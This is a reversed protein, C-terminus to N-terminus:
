GAVPAPCPRLGPDPGFAAHHLPHVGCCRTRLWCGECGEQFVNRAARAGIDIDPVQFRLDSLTYPVPELESARDRWPGLLCPPVMETDVRLGLADAAAIADVVDPAVAGLPAVVDDFRDAAGGQINLYSLKARTIASFSTALLTVVDRLRRHNARCVVTNTSFSLGADDLNGLARWVEDFSGPRGTLADHTAADPGHLSVFCSTLGADQLARVREPRALLRGNTQINVRPIGRDRAHAVVRALDRRLTPEGGSLVLLGIPGQDVLHDIETMVEATTRDGHSRKWAATCFGCQNNCAYGVKVYGSRPTDVVRAVRALVRAVAGWDVEGDDPLLLDDPM